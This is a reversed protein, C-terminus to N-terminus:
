GEFTKYANELRSLLSKLDWWSVNDTGVGARAKFPKERDRLFKPVDIEALRELERRKDEALSDLFRQREEELQRRLEELKKKSM